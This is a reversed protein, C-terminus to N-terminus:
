SRRARRGQRPAPFRRADLTADTTLLVIREGKRADPLAVVVLTAGPWAEAALAEVASLSVM